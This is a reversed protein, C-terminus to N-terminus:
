FVVFAGTRKSEDIQGDRRRACMGATLVGTNSGGLNPNAIDECLPVGAALNRENVSRKLEDTAQMRAIAKADRESKIRAEEALKARM